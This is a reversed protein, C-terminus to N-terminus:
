MYDSSVNKNIVNSDMPTEKQAEAAYVQMILLVKIGGLSVSKNDPLYYGSLFLSKGSYAFIQKKIGPVKTVANAVTKNTYCKNSITLGFWRYTPLHRGLFVM